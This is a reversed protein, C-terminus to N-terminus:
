LYYSFVFKDDMLFCRVIIRSSSDLGEWTRLVTGGQHEWTGLKGGRLGRDRRLWGVSRWIYTFQYGGGVVV